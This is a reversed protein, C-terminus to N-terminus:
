TPASASCCGRPGKSLSFSKTPHRIAARLHYYSQMIQNIGEVAYTVSLIGARNSPHLAVRHHLPDLRIYVADGIWDSVRGNFLKTWLREDAASDTSRLAVNQFGIIGSNRSPFYRWGTMMPRWVIEITNGSADKFALFAKVKREGCEAESGRRVSFGAASLEREAGDLDEATRVDVAFSQDVPDGEFFLLTFDRFDSRFYARGNAEGVPQLGLIETAFRAADRLNRTGLRVYRLQELTVTM